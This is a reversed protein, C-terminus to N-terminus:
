PTLVLYFLTGSVISGPNIGSANTLTIRLDESTLTEFYGSDTIPLFVNTYSLLPPLQIAGSLFTGGSSSFSVSLEDGNGTLLFGMVRIVKGSVGSVVTGTGTGVKQVVVTTIRCVQGNVQYIRRPDVTIYNAM